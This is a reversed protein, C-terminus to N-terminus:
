PAALLHCGMLLSRTNPCPCFRLALRVQLAQWAERWVRAIDRQKELERQVELYAELPVVKGEPTGGDSLGADDELGSLPYPTPSSLRSHTATGSLLDAQLEAVNHREQKQDAEKRGVKDDPLPPMCPFVAACLRYFFMAVLDM